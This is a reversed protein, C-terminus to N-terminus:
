ANVLHRKNTYHTNFIERYINSSDLDFMKVSMWEFNEKFCKLTNYIGSDIEIKTGTDYEFIEKDKYNCFYANKLCTALAV